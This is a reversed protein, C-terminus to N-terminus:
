GATCSGLHTVTEGPLPGRSIDWGTVGAWYHCWISGNSCYSLDCHKTFSTALTTPNPAPTVPATTAPTPPPPPAAEATAPVSAQVTTTHTITVTILALATPSFTLFFLLILM